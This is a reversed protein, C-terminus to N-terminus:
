IIPQSIIHIHYVQIPAGCCLFHTSAFTPPNYPGSTIRLTHTPPPAFMLAQTPIAIGLPVIKNIVLTIAVVYLKDTCTETLRIFKEDCWMYHQPQPQQATHTDCTGDNCWTPTMTVM